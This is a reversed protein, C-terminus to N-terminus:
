ETYKQVTSVIDENTMFVDEYYKFIYHYTEPQKGKCVNNILNKEIGLERGAEASNKFIKVVNGCLDMQVIKSEPIIEPYKYKWVYGGCSKKKGKCCANLNSKDLHMERAAEAGTKWERVLEGTKTLQLVPRGQKESVSRRIKNVTEESKGQGLLMKSISQKTQFSRPKGICKKARNRVVEKSPKTYYNDEGGEKINTLNFGWEKFQAIWYKELWQWDEGEEFHVTEIEEIIISNGRLLQQNIWNYNHNTCYEQKIAKKASCLHGQLRRKITQKTKGVYRINNPYASSSLTYFTIDMFNKNLIGFSKIGIKGTTWVSHTLFSNIVLMGM